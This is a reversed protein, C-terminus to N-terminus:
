NKYKLKFGGVPMHFKKCQVYLKYLRIILTKIHLVFYLCQKYFAFNLQKCIFLKARPFTYAYNDAIKKYTIFCFNMKHDVKM